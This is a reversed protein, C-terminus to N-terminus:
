ECCAYQTTSRIRGEGRGEEVPRLAKGEEHLLECCGQDRASPQDVLRLADTQRQVGVHRNRVADAVRHQEPDLLEGPRRLLAPQAPRTPSARDSREARHPGERPWGRIARLRRHGGGAPPCEACRWLVVFDPLERRTVPCSPALM